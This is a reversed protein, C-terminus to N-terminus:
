KGHWNQRLQALAGAVALVLLTPGVVPWAANVHAIV